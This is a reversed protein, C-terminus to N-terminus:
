IFWYSIGLKTTKESRSLVEFRTVQVPFTCPNLQWYAFFAVITDNMYGIVPYVPFQTYLGM